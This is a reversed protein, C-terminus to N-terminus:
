DLLSPVFKRVTSITQNLGGSNRGARQGALREQYQAPLGKAALEIRDSLTETPQDDAQDEDAIATADAPELDGRDTVLNGSEDSLPTSRVYSANPDIWQKIEVPEPKRVKERTAQAISKTKQIAPGYDAAEHGAHEIGLRASIWAAVPVCAMAIAIGTPVFWLVLSTLIMILPIARHAVKWPSLLTLAPVAGVIALLVAIIHVVNM